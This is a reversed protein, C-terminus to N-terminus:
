ANSEGKAKAIAARAKSAELIGWQGPCLDDAIRRAREMREECDELAALLEPAAAILRANAEITKPDLRRGKVHAVTVTVAEIAFPDSQAGRGVRWPGPTADSM